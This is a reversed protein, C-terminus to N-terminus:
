GFFLSFVGWIERPRWAVRAGRYMRTVPERETAGLAQIAAIAEVNEEPVALRMGARALSLLARGDPGVIPLAPFPPVFAM